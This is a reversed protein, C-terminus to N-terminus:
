AAVLEREARLWNGLEDAGGQELAIFYARESIEDHTPLQRKLPVVATKPKTVRTRRRAPKAPKETM